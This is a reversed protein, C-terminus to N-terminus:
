KVDPDFDEVLWIDSQSDGRVCVFTSCNPAMAVDWVNPWPLSILPQQSGDDVRLRSILTGSSDPSILYLWAGDPSWGLCDSVRNSPFTHRRTRDDLSFVVLARETKKRVHWEGEYENIIFAVEGGSPSYSADSVYGNINEPMLQEIAGSEPDLLEYNDWDSYLIRHGPHWAVHNTYDTQEFVRPVGGGANIISVPNDEGDYATYAIKMGDSSWAPVRNSTNTHTIQRPTGGEVPMTFLHVENKIRRAFAIRKGDPSIAPEWVESTGSTLQSIKLNDPSRDGLQALWLNSSTVRQRFVM